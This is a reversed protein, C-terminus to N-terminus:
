KFFNADFKFNNETLRFIEKKQLLSKSGSLVHIFREFDFKCAVIFTGFLTIQAEDHSFRRTGNALLLIHLYAAYRCLIILM